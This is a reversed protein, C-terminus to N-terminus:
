FASIRSQESLTELSWCTMLTTRSLHVGTGDPMAEGDDVHLNLPDTAGKIHGHVGDAPPM